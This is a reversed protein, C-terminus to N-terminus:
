RFWQEQYATVRVIQLLSYLVTDGVVELWYFDGAVIDKPKYLIFSDELFEKVLKPQPLIASQIRKAYTISDLIEDRKERIEKTALHIETELFHQRKLLQSTRFKILFFIFLFSFAVYSARASWTHYWPPSINIEFGLASSWTTGDESCSIYLKYAGYNLQSIDLSTLNSPSSWAKDRGELFHCYYLKQDGKIDSNSFYNINLNGYNYPLNIKDKGLKMELDSTFRPHISNGIELLFFQGNLDLWNIIPASPQKDQKFSKPNIFENLKNKSITHILKYPSMLQAVQAKNNKELELVKNISQLEGSQTLKMNFIGSTTIALIQQKGIPLIAFILTSNLGQDKNIYQISNNKKVVSIGNLGVFWKNAFSDMYVGFIFNSHLGEKESIRIITSDTILMIQGSHDTFCINGDKTATSNGGTLKHYYTGKWNIKIVGKETSIIFSNDSSLSINIIRGLSDNITTSEVRGTNHCRFITHGDNVIIRNSDIIAIYMLNHFSLPKKKDYIEFHTKIKNKIAIVDGGGGVVWITSDKTLFGGSLDHIMNDPKKFTQVVNSKSIVPILPTSEMNYGSTVWVRDKSDPMLYRFRCIPFYSSLDIKQSNKQSFCYISSQMGIWFSSATHAIDFVRKLHEGGIFAEMIDGDAQIHYLGNQSSFWIRSMSDIKCIFTNGLKNESGLEPYHTFKKGDFKVLGKTSYWLDGKDSIALNGIYETKPLGNKSKIHFISDGKIYSIELNNINYSTFYFSGDPHNILNNPSKDLLKNAVMYLKGNKIYGLGYDLFAIWLRGVKDVILHQIINTPLGEKTTYRILTNGKICILGEMTAMWTSNNFEIMDEMRCDGGDIGLDLNEIIHKSEVITEVPGKFNRIKPIKLNVVDFIIKQGKGPKYPTITSSLADLQSIKVFELNTESDIDSSIKPKIDKNVKFDLIKDDSIKQWKSPYYKGSEPCLDSYGVSIKKGTLQNKAYGGNFNLKSKKSIEYLNPFPLDKIKPKEVCGFLLFFVSIIFCLFWNKSSSPSHSNLYMM